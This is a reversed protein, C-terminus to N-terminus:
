LHIIYDGFLISDKIIKDSNITVDDMIISNQIIINNKIIVNNGVSVFPGILFENKINCNNGIFINKSPNFQNIKFLYQQLDLLGQVTGTDIFSNCQYQNIKKGENIFNNFADVIEYENRISTKLKEIVKFIQNSKFYAIGAWALIISDSSSKESIKTVIDNDKFHIKGVSDSKEKNVKSSIIKVDFDTQCNKLFINLDETIITDALYLLFENNGVFDKTLLAAHATGKQENQIVYTINVGFQSGDGFYQKIQNNEHGVVICIDKFNNQALNNIVYELITKGAIKIMQKPLKETIPSLRIGKGAALLVAKMITHFKILYIIRVHFNMLLYCQNITGSLM